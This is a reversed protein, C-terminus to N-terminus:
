ARPAGAERAAADITEAVHLLDRRRGGFLDSVTGFELVADLRIADTAVGLSPGSWAWPHVHVIEVLRIDRLPITASPSSRNMDYVVLEDGTLRLWGRGTKATGMWDPEGARLPTALARASAWGARAGRRADRIRRRTRHLLYGVSLPMLVAVFVLTAAWSVVEGPNAPRQSAHFVVGGVAVAIVITYGFVATVGRLRSEPTLASRWERRERIM